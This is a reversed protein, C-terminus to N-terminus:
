STGGATASVISEDNTPVAVPGDASPLVPSWDGGLAKYLTVAALAVQAEANILSFEQELLQLETEIVLPLNQTGQHYAQEALVLAGLSDNRAAETDRRSLESSSFDVLADEIDRYANLVTKEYSILGESAGAKAIDIQSSVRGWNLLQWNMSPGISWYRNSWNFLNGADSSQLGVTGVLSFAPLLDAEAVGIGAVAAALNREAARVDPRQRIVEAPMAVGITAPPVPIQGSDGLLDHLAGPTEGVLVSIRNLEQTADAVYGHLRSELSAVLSRASLVDTMTATGNDYSQRVLDFNHEAAVLGVETIELTKRLTRYSVYSTAVEARVTVLLDRWNEISALLSNEKSEMARRIKGWLDLEWTMSSGLKFGQGSDGDVTVGPIEGGDARFWQAYGDGNITPLLFSGAIGFDARAVEVRTMLIRLDLNNQQTRLILEDLIPDEFSEWWTGVGESSAELGAKLDNHWADPSILDPREYDPGVM